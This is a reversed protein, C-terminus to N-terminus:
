SQTTSPIQISVTAEISSPESVSKHVRFGVSSGTRSPTDTSKSFAALASYPKEMMNM